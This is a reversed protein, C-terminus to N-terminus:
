QGPAEVVDVGSPLEFHFEGDPVDVNRQVSAFTLVTTNGVPDTVGAEIIDFTARTVGLALSGLDPTSKPVLRVYIRDDACGRPDAEARFDDGIRGVGTLFSIPTTSVFAARFPAKLVQRESPQYIWLTTGDSVILQAEPSRYDWRMKGPKKFAVTGLAEETQGVAGVTTQQRFDARFAKTSEYRTQLKRVIEAPDPCSAASVKSPANTAAPAPRGSIADPAPKAERPNPAAASSEAAIVKGSGVESPPPAGGSEARAVCAAM